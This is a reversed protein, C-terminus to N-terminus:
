VLSDVTSERRAEPTRSWPGNSLCKGASVVLSYVLCALMLSAIDVLRSEMAVASKRVLRPGDHRM